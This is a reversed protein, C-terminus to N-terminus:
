SDKNIFQVKLEDLEHQLKKIIELNNKSPNEIFQKKARTLDQKMDNKGQCFHWVARWNDLIAEKNEANMNSCPLAFKGHTYISDNCVEDIIMDLGTKCLYEYLSCDHVNMIYNVMGNRLENINDNKINLEIIEQELDELLIPNNLICAMLVKLQSDYANITNHKVNNYLYNFNSQTSDNTKRSFAYLYQKLRNAVEFQYGKIISSDKIKDIYHYLKQKLAAKQEPTNIKVGNIAHNWLTDILSDADSLMKTIERGRGSLILSDPDHGQPLFVFQLSYGPKLLPLSQEMARISATNGALDGDFCLIPEPVLRWLLLLQSEAFSTGLPAVAGQYGYQHLAIVDLYGECCIVKFDDKKSQAFGTKAFNYGYIINSKHFLPTEPSNLYKPEGVHLVRGGFAVVRNRSDFIPFILRDRFYDYYSDNDKSKRILGVSKIDQTDYGCMKLHNLLISGKPAYGLRFKKIYEEQIGRKQIYQLAKKGNDINLQNQFFITAQEIIECYLDLKDKKVAIADSDHKLSSINIGAISALDEMSEMFTLGKKEMWITFVDGHAKCGYCHYTGSDEYIYFSPTKEKHFPCCAVYNSGRKYVKAYRSVIDVISIKRKIQETIISLNSMM